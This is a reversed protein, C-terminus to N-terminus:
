RTKVGMIKLKDHAIKAQGEASKVGNNTLACLADLDFMQADIVGRVMEHEAAFVHNKSFENPRTHYEGHIGDTCKHRFPLHSNGSARKFAEDDLRSVYQMQAIHTTQIYSLIADILDTEYVKGTVQEKIEPIINPTDSNFEFLKLYPEVYKYLHKNFSTAVGYANMGKDKKTYPASEWDFIMEIWDYKSKKDVEIFSEAHHGNMMRHIYDATLQPYSLSTLLKDMDHCKGRNIMIQYDARTFEHGLGDRKGIAKKCYHNILLEVAKRHKLTYGIGPVDAPIEVTKRPEM